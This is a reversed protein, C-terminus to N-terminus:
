RRSGRWMGTQPRHRRTEASNTSRAGRPPDHHNKSSPDLSPWRLVRVQHGLRCPVEEERAHSHLAAYVVVHERRTVDIPLPPLSRTFPPLQPETAWTPMIHIIHIYCMIIRKLKDLTKITPHLIRVVKENGCNPEKASCPSHRGFCFSEVAPKGVMNIRHGGAWKWIPRSSRRWRGAHCCCGDQGPDDHRAIAETKRVVLVPAGGNWEWRLGRKRKLPFWGLRNRQGFDHVRM